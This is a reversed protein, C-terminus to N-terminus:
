GCYAGSQVAQVFVETSFFASGFLVMLVIVDVLWIVFIWLGPKWAPRPFRFILQIGGYLMGIFPLVVALVLLTVAWPTALLDMVAPAEASLESILHQYPAGFMEPGKIGVLSASALGSTGTVLLLLGVVLVVVKGATKFFDSGAVERAADGVEHLGTQVNRRVGDATGPDGKMAWREQATRAAPMAIWLIVYVAAVWLFWSSHFLGFFSLSKIGILSLAALVVFALRFWVVDTNFYNALGSCVGGLQKHELDRYLKKRVTETRPPAEAAAAPGPDDAEIKDPRGLIDMVGQVASLTVVGGEGGRELLLEAMREEIGEMIERGGEQRLYHSELTTLYSRAAAAADTELTFAYGGISVREVEKM